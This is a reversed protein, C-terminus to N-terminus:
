TTENFFACSRVAERAGNEDVRGKMVQSRTEEIWWCWSGDVGPVWPFPAFCYSVTRRGSKSDINISNQINKTSKLSIAFDCSDIIGVADILGINVNSM